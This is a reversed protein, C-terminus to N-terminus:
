GSPRASVSKRAAKRRGPDCAPVADLLRRTYPHQPNAFLDANRAQEVIHGQHMVAVHDSIQQVVALNHSIFLLGLRHKHQLEKLLNIIQDQVSVDLASTAEDCIVLQPKVILARAIAIRQRQGGSFEHPYRQMAAAELGVEALIQEVRRVKDAGKALRHVELPEAVICGVTLRPNLSSYPDQFVFQIDRRLRKLRPGRAHVISDGQVLIDGATPQQLQVVTRALTTKGCGSEGVLGFVQGARMSLSVDDVARICAERRRGAFYVKLHDIRLLQDATDPV